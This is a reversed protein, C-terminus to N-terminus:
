RLTTWIEQRVFDRLTASREGNRKRQDEDTEDAARLHQHRASGLPRAGFPFRARKTGLRHAM